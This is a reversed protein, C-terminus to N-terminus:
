QSIDPGRDGETDRLVVLETTEVFRFRVTGTNSVKLNFRDDRIETTIKTRIEGLVGLSSELVTM